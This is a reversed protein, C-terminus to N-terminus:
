REGESQVNIKGTTLNIAVNDGPKVDINADSVMQSFDLAEREMNGYHTYCKDVLVELPHACINAYFLCSDYYSKSTFIRTYEDEDREIVIDGDGDENERVMGSIVPHKPSYCTFTNADIQKEIFNPFIYPRQQLINIKGNKSVAFEVDLPYGLHKELGSVLCSLIFQTKYKGMREENDAKKISERSNDIYGYDVLRSHLNWLSLRDGGECYNDVFKCVAFLKGDDGGKSILNDAVKGETYNLVIFPRQFYTESYAVGAIQPEEIMQQIIIGMRATPEAKASDYVTNLAQRMQQRTKVHLVSKFIGSYSKDDSDECDASSRVAVNGGCAAVCSMAKTVLSESVAGNEKYKEHFSLPIAFTKPVELDLHYQRAYTYLLTEIKKLGSLKNGFENADVPIENIPYIENNIQM